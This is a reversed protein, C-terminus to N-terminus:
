KGSCLEWFWYGGPGVPGAKRCHAGATRCLKYFDHLSVGQQHCQQRFVNAPVPGKALLLRIVAVPDRAPEIKEPRAPVTDAVHPSKHWPNVTWQM